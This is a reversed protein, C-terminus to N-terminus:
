EIIKLLHDQRLQKVIATVSEQLIDRRNDYSSSSTDLSWIMKGDSLVYLETSMFASFQLVLEENESRSNAIGTFVDRFKRKEAISEGSVNPAKILAESDIAKLRTVLVGDAKFAKAISTVFERDPRKSLDAHTTVTQAKIGQALLADVLMSEFQEVGSRDKGVGLVLVRGFSGRFSPTIQHGEISQNVSCGAILLPLLLCFSLSLNNNVILYSTKDLLPILKALLNKATHCVHFVKTKNHVWTM